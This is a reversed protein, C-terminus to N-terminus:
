VKHKTQSFIAPKVKDRFFILGERIGKVVARPTITAGSFQDFQGGDKKVQFQAMTTNDLSKHTFSFIWNSKKADIKDGLGPTETHSIVRAGLIEGKANIGLMIQIPGSYGITVVQYAVAVPVKNKRAVYILKKDDGTGMTVTDSLLNNDYLKRPLVMDISARMDEDLRKAIESKTQSSGIALLASTVLAIGALLGAHYGIRNKYAPPEKVSDAQSM